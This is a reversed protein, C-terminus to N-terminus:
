NNAPAPGLLLSIHANILMLKAGNASLTYNARIVGAEFYEGIQHRYQSVAHLAVTHRFQSLRPSPWYSQQYRKNVPDSSSQEAQWHGQPSHLYM